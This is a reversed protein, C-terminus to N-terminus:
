SPHVEHVEPQTGSPHPSVLDLETSTKEDYVKEDGSDDAEEVIAGQARIVSWTEEAV